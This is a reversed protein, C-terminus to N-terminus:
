ALTPKNTTKVNNHRNVALVQMQSSINYVKTQQNLYSV